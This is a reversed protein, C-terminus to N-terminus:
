QVFAIFPDPGLVALAILVFVVTFALTWGIARWRRQAALAILLLGPFIKSLIASALLGGGLVPRRQEFAVMGAVALLMAMAHFQGFQLNLMTPVSALLAPVLLGALLGRSGGIWWALLLAATLFITTQLVFWATRIHDFSNTLALAARPLLLFPPPYEYPDFVWRGLGDVPSDVGGPEADSPTTFAPYWRAHYVNPEHRRCLDAARLSGASVM